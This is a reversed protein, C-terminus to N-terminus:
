AARNSCKTCAPHDRSGRTISSDAQHGALAAAAGVSLWTLTDRSPLRRFDTAIDKFLNDDSTDDQAAVSSGPPETLTSQSYASSAAGVFVLVLACGMLFTPKFM